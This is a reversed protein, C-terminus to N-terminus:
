LLFLNFSSNIHNRVAQNESMFCRNLSIDLMYIGVLHRSQSPEFLLGDYGFARYIFPKGVFIVASLLKQLIANHFFAVHVCLRKSGFLCLLSLYVLPFIVEDSDYAFSM